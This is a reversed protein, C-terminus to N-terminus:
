TTPCRGTRIRELVLEDLDLGGLDDITEPVGPVAFGGGPTGARRLVAADCRGGGSTRSRSRSRGARGGALGAHAVADAARRRVHRGSGAGALASALRELTPPAWSTPHALAIRAPPGGEKEVVRDVVWRVLRASLDEADM